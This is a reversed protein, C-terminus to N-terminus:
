KCVLTSSGVTWKSTAKLSEGIDTKLFKPRLLVEDQSWQLALCRARGVSLGKTVVVTSEEFLQERHEVLSLDMGTSRTKKEVDVRLNCSMKMAPMLEVVAKTVM